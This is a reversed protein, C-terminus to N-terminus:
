SDSRELEKPRGVIKGTRADLKIGVKDVKLGETNADRGIAVMITEFREKKDGDKTEITVEYDRDKLKTVSKVKSHTMMKMGDFLLDDCIM